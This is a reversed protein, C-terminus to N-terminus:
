AQRWRSQSEAIPGPEIHIWPPQQQETSSHRSIEGGLLPDFCYATAAHAPISEFEPTRLTRNQISLKLDVLVQSIYTAFARAAPSSVRLSLTSHFFLAIVDKKLILAPAM